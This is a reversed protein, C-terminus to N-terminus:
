NVLGIRLEAASNPKKARRDRKDDNLKAQDLHGQSVVLGDRTATTNDGERGGKSRTYFFSGKKRERNRKRKSKKKTGRRQEVM